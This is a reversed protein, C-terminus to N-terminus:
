FILHIMSLDYKQIWMQQWRWPCTCFNSFVEFILKNWQYRELVKMSFTKMSKVKLVYKPIREAGQACSESSRGTSLNAFLECDIPELRAVPLNNEDWPRREDIKENYRKFPIKAM